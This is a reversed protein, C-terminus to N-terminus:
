QKALSIAEENFHELGGEPLVLQEDYMLEYLRLLFDSAPMGCRIQFEVALDSYHLLFAIDKM